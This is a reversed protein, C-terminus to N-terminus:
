NVVNPNMDKLPYRIYIERQTPIDAITQTYSVQLYLTPEEVTVFWLPRVPLRYNFQLTIPTGSTAITQAVPGLARMRVWDTQLLTTVRVQSIAYGEEIEYGINFRYYGGSLSEDENEIPHRLELWEITLTLPRTEDIELFDKAKLFVTEETVEPDFHFQRNASYSGIYAIMVLAIPTLVLFMLTVVKLRNQHVWGWFTHKTQTKAM